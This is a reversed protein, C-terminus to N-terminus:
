RIHSRRAKKKNGVFSKNVLADFDDGDSMADDKKESEGMFSFNALPPTLEKAIEKNNEEEDEKNADEVLM